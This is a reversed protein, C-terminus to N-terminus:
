TVNKFKKVLTAEKNDVFISFLSEGVENFLVGLVRDIGFFFEKIAKNWLLSM